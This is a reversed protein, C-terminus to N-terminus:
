FYGDIDDNNVDNNDDDIDDNDVDNNDEDIDDYGSHHSEKRPFTEIYINM